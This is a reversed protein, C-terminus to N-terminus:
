RGASFTYQASRSQKRQAPLLFPVTDGHVIFFGTKENLKSSKKIQQHGSQGQISLVLYDPNPLIYSQSRLVKILLLGDRRKEAQSAHNYSHPLPENALGAHKAISSWTEKKKQYCRPPVTISERPTLSPSSTWM